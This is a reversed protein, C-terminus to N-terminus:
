LNERKLEPYNALIYDKMKVRASAIHSRVTAQSCGLTAAVEMTKLGELDRLSLAARERNTLCGLSANIIEGLERQQTIYEPSAASNSNEACFFSLHNKIPLHKRKEQRLWDMCANITIRYFYPYPNTVDKLKHINKFIKMFAEQSIDRANEVSGVMKYAISFIKKQYLEIINEFANIDGSKAREIISLINNKIVKKQKMSIEFIAAEEMM